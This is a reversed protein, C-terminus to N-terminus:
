IVVRGDAIAEAYEFDARLWKLFAEESLPFQQTMALRAEKTTSVLVVDPLKEPRRRRALRYEEATGQESRPQPASQM